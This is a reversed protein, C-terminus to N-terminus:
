PNVGDLLSSCRSGEAIRLDGSAPDAFQPPAIVNATATFGVEPTEIEGFNGGWICNRRVVNEEGVPNGEPWWAEVDHRLQSDAIVNEEVVNGSSADGYDGSFIVGEGNGVIVNHRVITDDANPYFQIGRDPNDYIANDEIVTGVAQALYIGHRRNMGPQGCDHIRNHRIETARAIGWERDGLYFCVGNDSWVDMGYLLAHDGNVVPSPRPDSPEHTADHDVLAVTVYDASEAIWVQGTLLARQGPTSRLVVRQEPSGGHRIALIHEHYTGADLCGVEGPALSDVLRQSSRFPESRSGDGADSGAPSAFRDCDEPVPGPRPEPPKPPETAESVDIPLAPPPSAAAAGPAAPTDPSASPDIVIVLKPAAGIRKREARSLRIRLRSQEVAREVAGRRLTLEGAKGELRAQRVNSEPPLHLRFVLAKGEARSPKIVEEAASATAPAALAALAVLVAISRNRLM